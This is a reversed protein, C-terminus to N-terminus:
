ENLQRIYRETTANLGNVNLTIIPLYRNITEKTTERGGGGGGREGGEEEGEGGGGGEDELLGKSM